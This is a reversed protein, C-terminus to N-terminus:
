AGLTAISRAVERVHDAEPPRVNRRPPLLTSLERVVFELRPLLDNRRSANLPGIAAMRALLERRARSRTRLAAKLLDSM